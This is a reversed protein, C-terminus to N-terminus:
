RYSRHRDFFGPVNGFEEKEKSKEQQKLQNRHEVLRKNEEMIEKLYEKKKQQQENEYHSNLVTQNDYFEVIKADNMTEAQKNQERIRLHEDIEKRRQEQLQKKEDADGWIAQKRHQVLNNYRMRKAELKKQEKEYEKDANEFNRVHYQKKPRMLISQRNSSQM